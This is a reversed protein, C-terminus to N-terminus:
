QSQRNRRDPDQRRDYRREQEQDHPAGEADEEPAEYSPADEDFPFASRRNQSPGYRWWRRLEVWAAWGFILIFPALVLIVVPHPDIDPLSGTAICDRISETDCIAM